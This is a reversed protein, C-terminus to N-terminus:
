FTKSRILLWYILAEKEARLQKSRRDHEMGQNDVPMRRPMLSDKYIHQASVFLGPISGHQNAHLGPASVGRVTMETNFLNENKLAAIAICVALAAGSFVKNVVGAGCVMRNGAVALIANHNGKRM